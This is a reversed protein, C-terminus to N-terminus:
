IGSRHKLFLTTYTKSAGQGRPPWVQPSGTQASFVEESKQIETETLVLVLVAVEEGAVECCRALRLRLGPYHILVPLFPALGPILFERERMGGGKCPQWRFARAAQLDPQFCGVEGELGAHQWTLNLGSSGTRSFAPLDCKAKVIAKVFSM